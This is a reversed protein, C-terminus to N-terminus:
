LTVTAALHRLVDVRQATGSGGEIVLWANGSRSATLGRSFAEGPGNYFRAAGPVPTLGPIPAPLRGPHEADLLVAADLGWHQLYYETDICSLLARGVIRGPFAHITQVVHGWQPSLGPM